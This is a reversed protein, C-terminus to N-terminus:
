EEGQALVAAGVVTYVVLDAVGVLVAIEEVVAPRYYYDVVSHYHPLTQEDDLKDEVALKDDDVVAAGVAGVLFVVQALKDVVSHSLTLDGLNDEGAAALGLVGLVLKLTLVGTKDVVAEQDVL